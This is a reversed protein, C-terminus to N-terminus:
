CGLPFKRTDESRVYFHTRGCAAGSILMVRARHLGVFGVLLIQPSRFPAIPMEFRLCRDACIYKANTAM